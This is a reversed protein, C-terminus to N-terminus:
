QRLRLFIRYPRHSAHKTAHVRDYYILPQENSDVQITNALMRVAAMISKGDRNCHKILCSLNLEYRCSKKKQYHEDYCLRIKSYVLALLNQQRMDQGEIKPLYKTAIKVMKTLEGVKPPIM